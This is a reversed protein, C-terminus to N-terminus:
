GNVSFLNLQKGATHTNVAQVEKGEVPSEVGQGNRKCQAAM